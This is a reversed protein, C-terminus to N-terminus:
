IKKYRRTCQVGNCTMTMSMEDGSATRVNETTFGDGTQKEVLKDGDLSFVAKIKRGDLTFSDFEQGLTFNVIREGVTPTKVKFTWDDGSNSIEYSMKSDDGLFKHAEIRKAEDIGLAIMYEEFNDSSCVEWKGTFNAM